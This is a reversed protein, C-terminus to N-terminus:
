LLSNILFVFNVNFFRVKMIIKSTSFSLLIYNIYYNFLFNFFIIKYRNSTKTPIEEINDLLNNSIDYEAEM